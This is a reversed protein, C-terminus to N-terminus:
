KSTSRRSRGNCDGARHCRNNRGTVSTNGSRKAGRALDRRPSGVRDDDVSRRDVSPMDPFEALLAKVRAEFPAFSTPERRRQYRPPATSAVAKVVTTRSIGLRGAIQKKPVGEAALRRILAWDEL